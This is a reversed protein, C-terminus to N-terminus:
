WCNTSDTGTATKVGDQNIVLTACYADAHPSTPTATISYATATPAVPITISFYGDSSAMTTVGAAVVGLQALTGYTTNNARYKEQALQISLLGAKADGRKARLVYGQYSPYAIGALIGIIAVVIMLEILTFGKNQIKSM